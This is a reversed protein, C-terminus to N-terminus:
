KSILVKYFAKEAPKDADILSLDSGDGDVPDGVATFEPDEVGLDECRLLQYSLGKVSNTMTVAASAEDVASAAIPVSTPEPGASAYKGTFWSGSTLLAALPATMINGNSVFLYDKGASQYTSTLIMNIGTGPASVIQKTSAGNVFSFKLIIQGSPPNNIDLGDTSQFAKGWDHNSSSVASGM